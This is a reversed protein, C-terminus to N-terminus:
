SFSVVQTKDSLVTLSSKEWEIEGEGQCNKKKLQNTGKQKGMAETHSEACKGIHIHLSGYLFLRHHSGCLAWSLQNMIFSNIESRVWCPAVQLIFKLSHM